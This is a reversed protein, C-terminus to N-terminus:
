LPLVKSEAIKLGQTNKRGSDLERGGAYCGSDEVLQAAPARDFNQKLRTHISIGTEHM